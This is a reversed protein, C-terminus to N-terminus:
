VEGGQGLIRREVIGHIDPHLGIQRTTRALLRRFHDLHPIRYEKELLRLLRKGDIHTYASDLRVLSSELLTEKELIRQGAEVELCGLNKATEQILLLQDNTPFHMGFYSIRNSVRTLNEDWFIWNAAMVSKLQRCLNLLSQTMVEVGTIQFNQGLCLRLEEFVAVPELLYNELAYRRLIFLHAEADTLRAEVEAENRFDRDILGYAQKTTSHNLIETLFTEVSSYGEASYFEVQSLRDHFWIRFIEVDDPGEVLVLKRPGLEFLIRTLEVPLPRIIRTPV